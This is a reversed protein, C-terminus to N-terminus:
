ITRNENKIKILNRICFINYVLMMATLIKEDKVYAVIAWYTNVVFWAVYSIYKKSTEILMYAMVGLTFILYSM